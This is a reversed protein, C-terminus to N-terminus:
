GVVVVYLFQFLTHSDDRKQFAQKQVLVGSLSSFKSGRERFVQNASGRFGSKPSFQHPGRVSGVLHVM